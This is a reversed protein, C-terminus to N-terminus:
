PRPTRTAMGTANHGVEIVDVIERSATDIVVVTGLGAPTAPAAHREHGAAMDHVQSLNNNSVYVHRGDPSVAVGHPQALGRGRIVAVVTGAEADIVTVANAAKNGVYVWRGDVTYIPDFPQRDVDVEATMRPNMPESIDFLFVKHSLEASVTMGRGDPSVVSQMLAHPPGPVDQLRVREADVDVAALQNVGLSATYVTSSRPELSLAHPRPFMVSVEDISMDSRRIIGIRQPPNVATMSRAVFLLDDTPHLALMGPTEFQVQAVVRDSADLKVVRNEGILTVYWHSGDPEIAIHHPRANPSFGLQQLDVTRVVRNTTMDIVSVSADDQNCVFLLTEDVFAPAPVAAAAEAMPVACGPLIAACVLLLAGVTRPDTAPILRGM